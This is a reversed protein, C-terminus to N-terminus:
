ILSPPAVSANRVRRAVVAAIAISAVFAAGLVGVGARSFAAQAGVPALLQVRWGARCRYRHIHPLRHGQEERRGGGEGM